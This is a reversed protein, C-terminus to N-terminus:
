LTKMPTIISALYYEENTTTNIFKVYTQIHKLGCNDKTHEKDKNNEHEKNIIDIIIYSHTLYNFYLLNPNTSCTNNIDNPVDDTYLSMNINKYSDVFTGCIFMHIGNYHDTNSNNIKDMKETYYEDMVRDIFIDDDLFPEIYKNGSIKQELEDVNYYIHQNTHDHGAIFISIKHKLILPGIHKLIAGYENRQKYVGYSQLPYHGIIIIHKGEQVSNKLSVDLEQLVKRRYKFLDAKMKRNFAQWEGRYDYGPTNLSKLHIEYFDNFEKKFINKYVNEIEYWYYDIINTDIMYVHCNKYGIIYFRSNCTYYPTNFQPIINGVYDHNGLVAYIKDKDLYSFMEGFQNLRKDKDSFLGCPYFNDGGLLLVPDDKDEIIVEQLHTSHTKFLETRNDSNNYFGFDSIFYLM